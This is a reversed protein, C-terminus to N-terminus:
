NTATGSAPAPTFVDDLSLDTLVEASVDSGIVTFDGRIATSIAEDNSDAEVVVTTTQIVKYFAM